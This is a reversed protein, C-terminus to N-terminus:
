PQGDPQGTTKGRHQQLQKNLQDNVRDKQMLVARTKADVRTLRERKWRALEQAARENNGGYKRYIDAKAQEAELDGEENFDELLEQLLEM